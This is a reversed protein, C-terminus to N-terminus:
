TRLLINNEARLLDNLRKQHKLKTKLILILKILESKKNLGLSWEDKKYIQGNSKKFGAKVHIRPLKCQIGMKLLQRHIQQLIRKDYSSIKFCAINQKSIWFSGEADTYGALFYAFFDDNKLIWKPIFDKKPLLFAFTRNLRVLFVKNGDKRPKGVWIHGYNKFLSKFLGFQEKKTSTCDAFVQKKSKSLGVRLDGQRFGILYAKEELDGSFDTKKYFTVKESANRPKLRYKKMLKRITEKHVNLKEAVQRQSMEQKYYLREILSKSFIKNRPVLKSAESRTRLLIHHRKLEKSIISRDCRFRKSIENMALKENLYLTKLKAKPISIIKKQMAAKIAERQNRAPISFKAMKKHITTINCKLASAIEARSLQRKWYLEELVKKNIDPRQMANGSKVM